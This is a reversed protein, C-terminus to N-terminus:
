IAHSWALKDQVPPNCLGVRLGFERAAGLPAIRPTKLAWRHLVHRWM